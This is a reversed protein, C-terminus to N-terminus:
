TTSPDKGILRADVTKGHAFGVTIKSAGEVVHWNTLIMGNGDIEFGSGTAIGQGGDAEGKLYEGASRADSVGSASVFVVGPADHEYIQRAIPAGTRPSVSSPMLSAQEVTVTKAAPEFNGTAVLIATILAVTLVGGVAGALITATWTDPRRRLGGPM